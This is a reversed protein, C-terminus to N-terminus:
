WLVGWGVEDHGVKSKCSTVWGVGAHGVRGYGWWLRGVGAHGVGGWFVIVLCTNCCNAHNQMLRPYTIYMTPYSYCRSETNFRVVGQGMWGVGSYGVMVWGAGLVNKPVFSGEKMPHIM